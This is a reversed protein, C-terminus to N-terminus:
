CSAESWIGLLVRSMRVMAAAPPRLQVMREAEALSGSHLKCQLSLLFMCVISLVPCDRGRECPVVLLIFGGHGCLRLAKQAISRPNTPFGTKWSEDQTQEHKGMNRSVDKSSAFFLLFFFFFSFCILM